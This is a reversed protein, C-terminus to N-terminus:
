RGDRPPPGPDRPPTRGPRRSGSRRRAARRRVRVDERERERMYRIFSGPKGNGTTPRTWMPLSIECARGTRASSTSSMATCASRSRGWSRPIHKSTTATTDAPPSSIQRPVDAYRGGNAWPPPGTRIPPRSPVRYRRAARPATARRPRFRFAYAATDPSRLGIWVDRSPARTNPNGFGIACPIHVFARHIAAKLAPQGLGVRDGDFEPARDEQRGRNPEAGGLCPRAPSRDRSRDRSRDQSGGRSRDRFDGRLRDRSGGLSRDRFGSRSRHRPAPVHVPGRLRPRSRGRSQLPRPSAPIPLRPLRGASQGAGGSRFSRM